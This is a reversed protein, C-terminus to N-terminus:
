ITPTEVGIFVLFLPYSLTIEMFGHLGSSDSSLFRAHSFFMPRGFIRVGEVVNLLIQPVVASIRSFVTVLNAFVANFCVLTFDIQYYIQMKSPIAYNVRAM